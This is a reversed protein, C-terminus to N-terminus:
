NKRLSRLYEKHEDTVRFSELAKQIAKRRVWEELRGEELYPLSEEYRKALATAFFWAVMMRIYYDDGKVSAALALYEERFDEGLFENMLMRLGFRATYVCDSAIWKRIYPLLERHHKAFTKPTAQDSVPWCDVYPLFREVERVCEGFDRIGAILFFHVLDEEYYAHPLEKLFADGEPTGFAEKAIRRMEPTRVGLIRGPDINPVLKAQFDRYGEDRAKMLKEVISM